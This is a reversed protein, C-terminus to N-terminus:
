PKWTPITVPVTAIGWEIRNAEASEKTEYLTPHLVFNGQPTKIVNGWMTVETPALFLDLPTEKESCNWKGDDSFYCCEGGIVAINKQGCKTEFRHFETVKRGDRTVLPHGAIAKALDFDKYNM